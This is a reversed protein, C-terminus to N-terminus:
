TFHPLNKLNKFNRSFSSNNLNLFFEGPNEGPGSSTNHYRSL